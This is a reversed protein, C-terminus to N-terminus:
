GPKKPKGPKTKAGPKTEKSPGKAKKKPQLAKKPLPRPDPGIEVRCPAGSCNFLLALHAYLFKRVPRYRPDHAVSRLQAPDRRMDYLETQGNAYVVYLYRDTRIARYAPAIDTNIASKIADAEQELNKVGRKGAVGIRSLRARASASAAEPGAGGAGTDAELLVPRTSRAAPNRAFFLLSRGDLAPDQAGSAIDLVTQTVDGLWVIENSVAGHPIGPGRIILPVRSAPDYPLYKGSPIRHEGRFFGNDSAFIIYTDDLVGKDRLAQVIRNVADDVSLLQEEQRRRENAITKAFRKGIRTKIQRRLWKPKDSIDKENFAPLRPLPTGAFRLLDRPAPDFPGHPSNFWLNLMFPTQDDSDLHDIFDLARDRFVDTQYDAPQDGYFATHPAVFPSEKQILQYNFYLSDESIKGFWQDWGPPIPNPRDTLAYGNMYKGVHVNYYGYRHMWVPLANRERPEFRSWSGNPPFNGRVGHNHMYQGSLLTARSPCCLPFSVYAENFTVGERAIDQLTFPMASMESSPQDDTLIFVVNKPSAGHAERAALAAGLTALLAIAAALILRAPAPITRPSPLQM